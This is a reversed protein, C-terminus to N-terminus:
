RTPSTRIPRRSRGCCPFANPGPCTCLMDSLNIIIEEPSPEVPAEGLRRGKEAVARALQHLLTHNHAGLRTLRVAIEARTELPFRKIVQGAAAPDICSLILAIAGVQEGELARRWVTRRCVGCSRSPLRRRRPRRHSRGTNGPRPRVSPSGNCTSSSPSHPMWSARRRRPPRRPSGSACVNPSTAGWGGWSRDLLMPQFRGSCNCRAKKGRLM